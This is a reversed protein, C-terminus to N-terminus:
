KWISFGSKRGEDRWIRECSECTEHVRVRVSLEKRSDLDCLRKNEIFDNTNNVQLMVIMNRKM